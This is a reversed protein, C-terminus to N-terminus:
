RDDLCFCFLDCNRDHSHERLPGVPNLIDILTEHQLSHLFVLDSGQGPVTTNVGLKERVLIGMTEALLRGVQFTEIAGIFVPSSYGEMVTGAKGVLNRRDGPSVTRDLLCQPREDGEKQNGHAPHDDNPQTHVGPFLAAAFILSHRRFFGVRRGHSPLRERGDVAIRDQVM